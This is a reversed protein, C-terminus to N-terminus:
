IVTSPTTSPEHELDTKLDPLRDHRPIRDVPRVLDHLHNATRAVALVVAPLKCLLGALPHGSFSLAAGLAVSLVIGGAAWHTFCYGCRLMEGAWGDWLDVRSRWGALLSSKRWLDVAAVVAMVCVLLDIVGM